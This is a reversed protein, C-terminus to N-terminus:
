SFNELARLVSENTWEPNDYNDGSLDSLLIPDRIGEVFVLVRKSQTDDIITKVKLETLEVSEEPEAPKIVIKKPQQLQIEM